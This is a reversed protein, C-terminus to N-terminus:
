SLFNSGERLVLSPIENRSRGSGINDGILPHKLDLVIRIARKLAVLGSPHNMTVGLTRSNIKILGETRHDLGGRDV